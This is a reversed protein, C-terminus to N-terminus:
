RFKFENPIMNKNLIESCVVEHKATRFPNRFANNSDLYVNM